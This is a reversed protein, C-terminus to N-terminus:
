GDIDGIRVAEEGDEFITIRGKVGDMTIDGLQLSDGMMGSVQTSDYRVQQVNPGPSDLNFQSISDISRNMFGDFGADGYDYDKRDDRM